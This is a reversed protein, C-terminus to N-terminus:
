LFFFIYVGIGIGSTGVFMLAFVFPPVGPKLCARYPDNPDYYVLVRKGVPFERCSKQALRKSGHLQKWGMMSDIQDSVIKTGSVKYNYKIIAQYEFRNGEGTQNEKKIIESSEIFGDATPWNNSRSLWCGLFLSILFIVSGIYISNQGIATTDMINNGALHRTRLGGNRLRRDM